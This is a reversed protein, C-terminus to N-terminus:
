QRGHRPSPFNSLNLAPTPFKCWFHWINWASHVHKITFHSPTFVELDNERVFLDVLDLTKFSPLHISLWPRQTKRKWLPRTNLSVLKWGWLPSNFNRISRRMLMINTETGVRARLIKIESRLSADVVNLSWLHPKIDRTWRLIYKCESSAITHGFIDKAFRSFDCKVLM